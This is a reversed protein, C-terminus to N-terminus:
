TIVMGSHEYTRSILQLPRKYDQARVPSEHRGLDVHCRDTPSWSAIDSGLYCSVAQRKLNWAVPNHLELNFDEDFNFYWLRERDNCVNTVVSNVTKHLPHGYEGDPGHTMVHEVHDANVLAGLQDSIWTQDSPQVAHERRDPLDWM